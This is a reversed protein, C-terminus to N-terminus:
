KIFLKRYIPAIIKYFGLKQTLITINSLINQKIFLFRIYIYLIYKNSKSESKEKIENITFTNLVYKQAQKIENYFLEKKKVSDQNEHIRYKTLSLPLNVFEFGGKIMRLWMNYDQTTKLTKDFMGVKLFAKKPILLTCGNLAFTNSILKLFIENKNKPSKLKNIIKKNKDILEYDNFIIKNEKNKLTNLFNVQKELKDNTYLDDHSLWSIYEGSAKEIGLNLATAVGGNEKYIYNIKDGFSLAVKETEGNDNSGDNIVLIEINNYTQALASEIAESLYNSGNYVPIIISVKPTFM